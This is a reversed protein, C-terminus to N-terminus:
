FVLLQWWLMVRVLELFPPIHCPDPPKTGVTPIEVTPLPSHFCVTIGVGQSAQAAGPPHWASASSPARSQPSHSWPVCRGKVVATHSRPSTSHTIQAEAEGETSVAHARCASPCLWCGPPCASGPVLLAPEVVCPRLTQRGTQPPSVSGCPGSPTVGGGPPLIVPPM